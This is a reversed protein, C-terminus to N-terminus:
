QLVALRISLARLKKSSNVVICHGRRLHSFSTASRLFRPPEISNFSITNQQFWSVEKPGPLPTVCKAYNYNCGISALVSFTFLNSNELFTVFLAIM